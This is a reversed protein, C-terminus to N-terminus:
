SSVSKLRRGGLFDFRVTSSRIRSDLIGVPMERPGVIGGGGLCPGEIPRSGEVVKWLVPMGVRGRLMGSGGNAVAVGEM